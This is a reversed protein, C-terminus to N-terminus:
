RYESTLSIRIGPRSPRCSCSPSLARWTAKGSRNMVPWPSTGIATLAILGARDVESLLREVLGDQKGRDAACDPHTLLRLLAILLDDAGPLTDVLQGRALTRGRQSSACVAYDCEQLLWEVVASQNLGNLVSECLCVPTADSGYPRSRIRALGFIRAIVASTDGDCRAM